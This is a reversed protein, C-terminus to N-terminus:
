NCVMSFTRSYPSSSHQGSCFSSRPTQMQRAIDESAAVSREQLQLQKLSLEYQERAQAANAVLQDGFLTFRVTAEEHSMRGTDVQRALLFLYAALADTSASRGVCQDNYILALQAYQTWSISREAMADDMRSPLERCMRKREAAKPDAACGCVLAVCAVAVVILNGVLQM